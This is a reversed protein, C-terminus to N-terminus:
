FLPYLPSHNGEMDILRIRHMIRRVVMPVDLGLMRNAFRADCKLTRKTYPQRGTRKLGVRM